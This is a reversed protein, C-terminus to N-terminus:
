CMETFEHCYSMDPLPGKLCDFCNIDDFTPRYNATWVRANNWETEPAVTRKYTSENIKESTVKMTLTEHNPIIGLQMQEYKSCDSPSGMYILFYRNWKYYLCLLTDPKNCDFICLYRNTGEDMEYTILAIRFNYKEEFARQKDGIFPFHWPGRHINHGLGGSTGGNLLKQINRIVFSSLNIGDEISANGWLVLKKWVGAWEYVAMESPYEQSNELALWGSTRSLVGRFIPSHLINMMRSIDCSKASGQLENSDPNLITTTTSTCVVPQVSPPHYRTNSTKGLQLTTMEEVTKKQPAGQAVVSQLKPAKQAAFKRSAYLDKGTQVAITKLQPAAQTAIENSPRAYKNFDKGLATAASKMKPAAQVAIEVSPRAYATFDAGMATEVTNLAPVAQVAIEASLRVEGEGILRQFGLRERAIQRELQQLYNHCKLCFDHHQNVAMIYEACNRTEKISSMLKQVKQRVTGIEVEFTNGVQTALPIIIKDVSQQIANSHVLIQAEELAIWTNVPEDNFFHHKQYCRICNILRPMLHENEHCRTCRFKQACWSIMEEVSYM